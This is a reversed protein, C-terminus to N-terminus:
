GHFAQLKLAPERCWDRYIENKRHVLIALPPRPKSDSVSIALYTSDPCPLAMKQKKLRRM